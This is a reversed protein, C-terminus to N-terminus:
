VESKIDAQTGVNTKSSKPPTTKVVSGDRLRRLWHKDSEVWEGQEALLESPKNHKRVRLPTKDASLAPKIYIKIKTDDTM